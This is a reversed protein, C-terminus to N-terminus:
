VFFYILTSILAVSVSIIGLIMGALGKKQIFHIVGFILACASLLLWPVVFFYVIATNRISSMWMWSFQSLALAVIGLIGGVGLKKKEKTSTAPYANESQRENQSFSVQSNELGAPLLSTQQDAQNQPFVLPYDNKVPPASNNCQNNMQPELQIQDYINRQSTVSRFVGNYNASEFVEKSKKFKKDRVRGITALIISAILMILGFFHFVTLVGLYNKLMFFIGTAVALFYLGLIIFLFIYFNKANNQKFLCSAFVIMFPLFIVGALTLLGFIAFLEAGGGFIAVLMTVFVAIASVALIIASAAIILAGAVIYLPSKKVKKRQM